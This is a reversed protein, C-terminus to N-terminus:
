WCTRPCLGLAFLLVVTCYRIMSPLSRVYRVYAGLTLMFFLGSLMDKREAIWAVSEVHLPHIAFVAAVFASRWLFGDDPAACPLATYGVNHPAPYQHSSPRRREVRIVPLRAHSLAMDASALPRNRWFDAGLSIGGLDSGKPRCSKSVCVRRRGLQPDRVPTDPRLGLVGGFGVPRVLRSSHVQQGCQRFGTPYNHFPWSQQDNIDTLAQQIGDEINGPHWHDRRSGAPDSLFGFLRQFIGLAQRSYIVVLTKVLADPACSDPWVDGVWGARLTSPEPVSPYWSM